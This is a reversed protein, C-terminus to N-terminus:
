RHLAPAGKCIQIMAWVNDATAPLGFCWPGDIANLAIRQRDTLRRCYPIRHYALPSTCPRPSREEYCKM